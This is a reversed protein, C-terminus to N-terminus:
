IAKVKVKKDSRVGRRVWAVMGAAVGIIVASGPAPVATSEFNNVITMTVGIPPRFAFANLIFNVSVVDGTEVTVNNSSLTHRSDRRHEATILNVADLGDDNLRLISFVIPASYLALFLSVNVDITGNM